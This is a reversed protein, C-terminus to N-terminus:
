QAPIGHSLIILCSDTTNLEGCPLLILNKSNFGATDQKILTPVDPISFFAISSTERSDSSSAGTMIGIGLFLADCIRMIM